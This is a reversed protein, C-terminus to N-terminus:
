QMELRSELAANTQSSVLYNDIEMLTSNERKIEALADRLVESGADHKISGQTLNRRWKKAGPVGHFLGLLHRTMSHVRIGSGVQDDVYKMFEEIVEERERVDHNTADVIEDVESLIWPYKYAARGIMVGDVFKLHEVCDRISNIGGNIGIFLNPYRSKLRYVRDYNLPPVERNQKPNLGSLIAKRAHVWIADVGENVVCEVLNDLASEIEQDDVGLRCKVSIPIKVADKMARVCKGVLSPEMMLCAGFRGNQVRGSPCGVNLNVENYGLGEVISSSEALEEPISGGLQCALPKETGSYGLIRERDGHLVAGTTIMETFLLANKSLLRHFVRCHRDTWDMMPAVAFVKSHSKIARTYIDVMDKSDSVESVM